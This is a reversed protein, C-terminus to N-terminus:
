SSSAFPFGEEDGSAKSTKAGPVIAGYAEIDDLYFSGSFGSVEIGLRYPGLGPDDFEGEITQWGSSSALLQEFVASGGFRDVLRTAIRVGGVAAGTRTAPLLLVRYRVAIAGKGSTPSMPLSVSRSGPGTIQWCPNGSERGEVLAGDGKLM